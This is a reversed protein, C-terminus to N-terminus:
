YRHWATAVEWDPDGTVHPLGDRVEDLVQTSLKVVHFTDLVQVADSLSDRL